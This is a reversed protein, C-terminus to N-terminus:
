RVANAEVTVTETAGGVAMQYDLRTRDGVQLVLGKQEAAKFGSAEVKINYHGIPLDPAVYNGDSNSTLHYTQGTETHTITITANAVAAGSPDIITGVVTANQGFAQSSLGLLLACLVLAHSICFHKLAFKSVRSSTSLLLQM